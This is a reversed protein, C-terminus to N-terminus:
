RTVVEAISTARGLAADTTILPVALHAALEVYLADVVRVDHRREWARALLPAVAHREIPASAIAVLRSTVGEAALLGGRHLRGLASLVEADVHAPAHLAAGAIREGVARGLEEDLLLDVLASADVVLGDEAM